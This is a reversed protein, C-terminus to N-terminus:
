ASFMAAARRRMAAGVLGFGTILMIWSAPEPVAPPGGSGGWGGPIAGVGSFTGTDVAVFTRLAQPVLIATASTFNSTIPPGGGFIDPLTVIGFVSFLGETQDQTLYPGNTTTYSFPIHYDDSPFLHGNYNSIKTKLYTTVHGTYGPIDYDGQVGITANSYTGNHYYQRLQGGAGWTSNSLVFDIGNITMVASIPNAAYDGSIGTGVSVTSGSVYNNDFHQAGPTADDITYTATFAAGTLSTGAAGFLGAYDTGSKITGTYIEVIKSAAAPVANALVFLALAQSIHKM